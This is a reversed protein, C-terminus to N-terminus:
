EQRGEKKRKWGTQYKNQQNQLNTNKRLEPFNETMKAYGGQRRKETGEKQIELCINSIKIKGEMAKLM